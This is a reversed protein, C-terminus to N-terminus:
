GAQSGVRIVCTGALLDHLGRRRPLVFMLLLGLGLPILALVYGVWRLLARTYGIEEGDQRVVQLGLLMQGPTQGGLGWCLVHYALSVAFATFLAAGLALLIVDRTVEGSVTAGGVATLSALIMALVTLLFILPADVLAAVARRGFGGYVLPPPSSILLEAPLTLRSLDLEEKFFDEEAVPPM